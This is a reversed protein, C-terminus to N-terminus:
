PRARSQGGPGGHIWLLAPVKHKSSAEHPKYLIAPIELGDFSPYRVVEAAVLDNEDIEENLTRTLRVLEKEGLRNVYLDGPSTPSGISLRILKESRSISVGSIDMGEMVPIHLEEGSATEFIRVVTKADENVGIVQYKGNFSFYAALLFCRIVIRRVSDATTPRIIAKAKCSLEKSM